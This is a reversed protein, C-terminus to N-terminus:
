LNWTHYYGKLLNNKINEAIGLLIVLNSTFFILSGISINFYILIYSILIEIIYILLANRKHRRRKLYPMETKSNPIPAIFYIIGFGLIFIVIYLMLSLKIYPFVLLTLIGLLISSLICLFHNPAHLGGLNVRLPSFIIIWIFAPFLKGWFFAICLFLTDSILCNLFCEIGYRYTDALIPQAGYHVFKKSLYNSFEYLM